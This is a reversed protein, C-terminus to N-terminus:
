SSVPQEPDDVVTLEGSEIQSWTKEMAEVVADANPMSTVEAWSRAQGLMTEAGQPSLSYRTHGAQFTGTCATILPDEFTFVLSAVYGEPYTDLQSGNSGLFPIGQARATEIVGIDTKDAIGVLVDVGSSTMSKAAEAGKAPDTFTGTFTVAVSIDPNVSRAGAIVGNLIANSTPDPEANILGIRNSKTLHGAAVGWLYGSQSYSFESTALNQLIPEEMNTFQYIGIFQTDPFQQAGAVTADSMNPFATAIIGYGARAASQITSEFKNVDTVVITRTEYGAAECAGLGKDQIQFSASGSDPAENLILAVKPAAPGGSPTPASACSALAGAVAIALAPMLLPKLNM